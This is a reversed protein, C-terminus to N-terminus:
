FASLLVRRSTTSVMVLWFSIAVDKSTTEVSGALVMWSTERTAQENTLRLAVDSYLGGRQSQLVAAFDRADKDALGLAPVDKSQYKSVGVALVYLKPVTLGGTAM